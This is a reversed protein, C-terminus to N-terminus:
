KWPSRYSGEGEFRLPIDPVSLMSAGMTTEDATGWGVDPLGLSPVYGHLLAYIWRMAGFCFLEGSASSSSFLRIIQEQIAQLPDDHLLSWDLCPWDM